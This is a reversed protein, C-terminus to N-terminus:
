QSATARYPLRVDGPFRTALRLDDTLREGIVWFVNFRNFAQMVDYTNWGRAKAMALADRKVAFRVVDHDSLHVHTLDLM